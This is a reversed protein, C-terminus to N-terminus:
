PWILSDTTARDKLSDGFVQEGPWPNPITRDGTTGQPDSGAIRAATTDANQQMQGMLTYINDGDVGVAPKQEFDVHGDAFYINQGDGAGRGGHNPSNFRMWQRPATSLDFVGAEYEPVQGGDEAYPGKDAVMAMRTDVDESARTDFPGWPVQFGYSISQISKFDYYRDIEETDDVTDGSSPCIYAKPVTEGARILMWFARTPSIFQGLATSDESEDARFPANNDPGDPAELQNPLAYVVHEGAALLSRDFAPTPWQDNNWPEAAYIKCSNGIARANAACTVRKALERARSLSPLLISILLAIIAVVVLLEILTFGRWRKRMM